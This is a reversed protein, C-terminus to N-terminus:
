FFATKYGIFKAAMLSIIVSSPLLKLYVTTKHSLKM